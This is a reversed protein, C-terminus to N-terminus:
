RASSRPQVSDTRTFDHCITMTALTLYRHTAARNCAQINPRMTVRRRVPNNVTVSQRGTYPSVLLVFPVITALVVLNMDRIGNPMTPMVVTAM